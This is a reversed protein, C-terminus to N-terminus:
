KDPYTNYVAQQIQDPNITPFQAQLQAAFQERTIPNTARTMQSSVGLAKQFAAITATADPTGETGADPGNVTGAPNGAVVQTVTPNGDADTGLLYKSGNAGSVVKNVTMENQVASLITGDPLGAAQEIQSWQAKESDTISGVGVQSGKYSNIIVQANAKATTQAKNMDTTEDQYVTMAQTFAKDYANSADTYNTQDNKMFSSVATNAQNLATTADKIQSKLTALAYADQASVMKVRGGVIASVVGKASDASAENAEGQLITNELTSLNTNLDNLNSQLAPVGVANQENTQDANLDPATPPAGLKAVMAQFDDEISSSTRSSTSDEVPASSLADAEDQIQAATKQPPAVPATGGTGSPASSAPATPAPTTAVTKPVTGAPQVVTSGVPQVGGQYQAADTPSPNGVVAANPAQSPLSNPALTYGNAQKIYMTGAAGYTGNLDTFASGGEPTQTPTLGKPVTLGSPDAPDFPIIPQASAM